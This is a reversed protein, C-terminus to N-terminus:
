RCFGAHRQRRETLLWFLATGNSWTLAEWRLRFCEEPRLGTDVLVEAVSCLPDLAAALYKAQEEPTVVRERHRAGPLMKINPASQAAGWEM